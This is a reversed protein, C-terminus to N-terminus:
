AKEHCGGKLLEPNDYINGIVHCNKPSIDYMMFPKQNCTMEAMFAALDDYWCVEYIEGVEDKIVDGEYIERGEADEMGTYQGISNPDVAIFCDEEGQYKEDDLFVSGVTHRIDRSYIWGWSATKGRFKITRM